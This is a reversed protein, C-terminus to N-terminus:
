RGGGPGYIHATQATRIKRFIKCMVALGSLTANKTNTRARMGPLTNRGEEYWEPSIRALDSQYQVTESEVGIAPDNWIMMAYKM